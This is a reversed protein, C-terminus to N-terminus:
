LSVVPIIFCIVRDSYLINEMLRGSQSQPGGLTCTVMEESYLQDHTFSLDSGDLAWNIFVHIQVVMRRIGESHEPVCLLWTFFQVQVPPKNINM